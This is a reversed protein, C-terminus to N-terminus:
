SSVNMLKGARYLLWLSILQIVHYLDNHNFNVSPKIRSMQVLAGLVSVVISGIVWRTSPGRRILQAAGVLLLTVGYDAIVWVFGDHTIMWSAYVIFKVIAIVALARGSGALLFFSALGISFVTAKWLATATTAAIVPAFGHFTGGFFSGAATFVFALAWMRNTRWLRAAFIAAAVTLMYDTALTMPEHINM